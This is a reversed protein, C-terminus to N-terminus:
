WDKKVACMKEGISVVDSAKDGICIFEYQAILM